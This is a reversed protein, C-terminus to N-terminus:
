SIVLVQRDSEEEGDDNSKSPATENKNEADLVAPPAIDIGAAAAAAPEPSNPESDLVAEGGLDPDAM